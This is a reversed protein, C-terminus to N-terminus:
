EDCTGENPAFTTQAAVLDGDVCPDMPGNSLPTTSAAECRCSLFPCPAPTAVALLAACLYPIIISM